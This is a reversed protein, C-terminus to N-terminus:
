KNVVFRSDFMMICIAKNEKKQLEKIYRGEWMKQKYLIKQRHYEDSKKPINIPSSM